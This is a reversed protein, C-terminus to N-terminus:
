WKGINDAARRVQKLSSVPALPLLITFTSGQGPTSEVRLDGGHAHVFASALSLGLGHGPQHRSQDGRYFREFVHPLDEPSIGPGTDRVDLVARDATATVTVRVEGGRPTFKVANDVLNAVARQIKPLEGRVSVCEPLRIDLRVGTEEAMPRIKEPSLVHRVLFYGGVGLLLLLVLLGCTQDPAARTLQDLTVPGGRALLRHLLRFFPQPRRRLTSGPRRLM